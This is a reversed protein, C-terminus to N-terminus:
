QRPRPWCSLAWRRVRRHISWSHQRLMESILGPQMHKTHSCTNIQVMAMTVQELDSPKENKKRTVELQQMEHKRANVAELKANKEEKAAEKRERKETQTLVKSHNKIRTFEDRDLIVSHGSPDPTGPVRHTHTHGHVHKCTHTTHTHTHTHARM